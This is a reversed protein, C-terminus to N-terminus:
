RSKVSKRGIHWYANLVASCICVSYESQQIHLGLGNSAGVQEVYCTGPEM